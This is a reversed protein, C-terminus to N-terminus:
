GLFEVSTGYVLDDEEMGHNFVQGIYYDEIEQKTGNIDTTITNGDDFTVKVTRRRSTADDSVDDMPLEERLISNIYERINMEQLYANYGM